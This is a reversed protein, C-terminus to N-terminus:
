FTFELLKLQGRAIYKLIIVLSSRSSNNRIVNYLPRRLGRSNVKELVIERMQSQGQLGRTRQQYYEAPSETTHESDIDTIIDGEDIYYNHLRTWAYIIRTANRLKLCLPDEFNEM